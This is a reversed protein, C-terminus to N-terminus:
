YDAKAQGTDYNLNNIKAFFFFNFWLIEFSTIM